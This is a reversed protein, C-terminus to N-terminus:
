HYFFYLIQGQVAIDTSFQRVGFECSVSKHKYETAESLFGSFKSNFVYQKNYESRQHWSQLHFTQISATTTTDSSLSFWGCYKAYM